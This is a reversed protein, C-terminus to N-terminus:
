LTRIYVCFVINIYYTMVNFLGHWNAKRWLPRFVMKQAKFHKSAIEYREEKMQRLKGFYDVNFKYILAHFKSPCSLVKYISSFTKQLAFVQGLKSFFTKKKKQMHLWATKQSPFCKEQEIKATELFKYLEIKRPMIILNTQHNTQRDEIAFAMEM